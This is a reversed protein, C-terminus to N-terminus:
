WTRRSINAFVHRLFQESILIIQILFQLSLPMSDFFFMYKISFRILDVFPMM